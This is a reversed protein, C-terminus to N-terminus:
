PRHGEGALWGRRGLEDAIRTAVIRNGKEVVHCHDQYVDSAGAFAETLDVIDDRAAALRMAEEYFVQRPSNCGGNRVVRQAEEDTPRYSGIGFAPQLFSVFRIGFERSVANMIRVHRAWEEATTGPPDPPDILTVRDGPALTRRLWSVANPLLWPAKGELAEELVNELYPNTFPTGLNDGSDGTENVGNFAVVVDPRLPVVDRILKMLEQGSGYGSVGGNLVVARVGRRALEEQLLAPWASETHLGETTSGGLTVIRLTDAADLDGSVVFGPIARRGRAEMQAVSYAPGLLPDLHAQVGPRRFWPAAERDWLFPAAEGQGRNVVWGIGELVLLLLLFLALSVGLAAARVAPRPAAPTASPTM